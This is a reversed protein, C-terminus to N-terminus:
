ASNQHLSLLAVAVGRFPHGDSSGCGTASAAHGIEDIDCTLTETAEGNETNGLFTTCVCTSVPVHQTVAARYFDNAACMKAAADRPRTSTKFFFFGTKAIELM